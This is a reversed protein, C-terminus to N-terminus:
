QNIIGKLLDDFGLKISSDNFLENLNGGDCANCIDENIPIQAILPINFAKSLKEGGGRGFLYYKEDKHKSPIFWSMNEVIGLVPVGVHQDQFMAIAKKVDELAIFQPTTVIVAGSIEYQQLLTIHIDGTGPPTDLILYDLQGWNTDNIM